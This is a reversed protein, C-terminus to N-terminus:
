WGGVSNSSNRWATAAHVAHPLAPQHRPPLHALPAPGAGELCRDQQHDHAHDGNEDKGGQELGAAGPVDADGARGGRRQRGGDGLLGLGGADRGADVGVGAQGGALLSDPLALNVHEHGVRPPQLPVALGVLLELGHHGAGDLQGGDALPGGGRADAGAGQGGQQCRHGDGADFETRDGPRPGPSSIATRTMVMTSNKPMLTKPWITSVPTSSSFALRTTSTSRARIGARARSAPLIAPM